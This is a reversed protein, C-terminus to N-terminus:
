VTALPDTPLFKELPLSAAIRLEPTPHTLSPTHPPLAKTTYFFIPLSMLFERAHSSYCQWLSDKGRILRVDSGNEGWM